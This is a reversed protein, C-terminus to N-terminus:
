NEKEQEPPVTECLAAFDWAQKEIWNDIQLGDNATDPDCYGCNGCTCDDMVIGGTKGRRAGDSNEGSCPSPM